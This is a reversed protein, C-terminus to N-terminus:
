MLVHSVKQSLKHFCSKVHEYSTKVM